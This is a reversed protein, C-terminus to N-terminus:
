LPINGELDTPILFLASLPSSSLPLVSSLMQTPARSPHSFLFLTPIPVLMTLLHVSSKPNMPIFLMEELKLGEKKM